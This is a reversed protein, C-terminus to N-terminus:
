RTLGPPHMALGSTQLDQKIEQAVVDSALGACNSIIAANTVASGQANVKNILDIQAEGNNPNADQIAMGNGLFLTVVAALGGTMRANILGLLNNLCRNLADDNNIAIKLGPQLEPVKKKPNLLGAKALQKLIEYCNKIVDQNLKELEEKTFLKKVLEPTLKMKPDIKKEALLEKFQDFFSKKEGPMPKNLTLTAVFMVTLRKLFGMDAMDRTNIDGDAKQARLINVMNHTVEAEKEKTPILEPHKLALRKLFQLVVEHLQEDTLSRTLEV